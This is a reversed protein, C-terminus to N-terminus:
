LLSEFNKVKESYLRFEVWTRSAINFGEKDLTYLGDIYIKVTDKRFLSLDFKRNELLSKTSTCIAFM